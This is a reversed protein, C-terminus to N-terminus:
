TKHKDAMIIIKKFNAETKAMSQTLQRQQQKKTKLFM